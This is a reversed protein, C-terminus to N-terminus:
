KWINLFELRNKMDVNSLSFWLKMFRKLLVGTPLQDSVIIGAHEEGSQLYKNHLLIFDRKNHTLLTRMQQIAFVLQEADSWKLNGAQQTTLVDVGRNTLAQAFSFPIDEDLYIKIRM